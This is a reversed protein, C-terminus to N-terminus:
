RSSFCSQENIWQSITQFLETQHHIAKYNHDAGQVLHLSCEAMKHEQLIGHFTQADEVPIVTDDTGHLLLVRRPRTSTNQSDGIQKVQAMDLTMRENWRAATVKWPRVFAASIGPIRPPILVLGKSTIESIQAPTFPIGRHM